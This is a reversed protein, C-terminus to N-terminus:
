IINISQYDKNKQNDSNLKNIDEYHSNYKCYDILTILTHILYLTLGVVITTTTYILFWHLNNKSGLLEAMIFSLLSTAKLSINSEKIGQYMSGIGIVYFCYGFCFVFLDKIHIGFINTM